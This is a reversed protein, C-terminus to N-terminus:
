HRLARQLRFWYRASRLAQRGRGRFLAYVADYTFGSWLAFGVILQGRWGYWKRFYRYRDILFRENVQEFTNVSASVHHTIQVEPWFWIPYGKLHMRYCFDTDNSFLRLEPDMEGIADYVERRILLCSTIAHQVLREPATEQRPFVAAQLKPRSNLFREFASHCFLGNKLSPFRYCTNQPEGAKNRQLPAVGGRDPHAKLYGVLQAVADPPLETDSNLFLIYNGRAQRLGLNNAEAYGVNVPSRIFEVWPYKSVV